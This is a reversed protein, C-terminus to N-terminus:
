EEDFLDENTDTNEFPEGTTNDSHRRSIHKDKTRQITKELVDVTATVAQEFSEASKKVFHDNGPVELRIECHCGAPDSSPGAFLTVDARVIHQSHSELKEIKEKVFNELENSAKFGPSEIIINM